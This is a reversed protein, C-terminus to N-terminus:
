APSAERPSAAASRDPPGRRDGLARRRLRRRSRRGGARPRPEAVAANAAPSLADDYGADYDDYEEDPGLGLYLMAKRWM